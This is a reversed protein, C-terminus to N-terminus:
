KFNVALMEFFDAGKELVREDFDFNNTHLAPSDGTGLFLFMGPLYRQYFAFDEATMAPAELETFAAVAKVRGCLEEPNLVAPYGSNISIEVRCGMERELDRGIDFLGDKLSDFIEDQFARLSGEM